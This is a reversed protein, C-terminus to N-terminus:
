GTTFLPIGLMVDIVLNAGILASLLALASDWAKDTRAYRSLVCALTAFGAAPVVSYILAVTLLGFSGYADFISRFPTRLETHINSEHFSAIGWLALVNMGYAMACFILIGATRSRRATALESEASPTPIYPNLAAVM